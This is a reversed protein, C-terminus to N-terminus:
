PEFSEWKPKIRDLIQKFRPDDRIGTLLVDGEAFLPYNQWGRDVCHELWEISEDFAGAKALLAAVMYQM